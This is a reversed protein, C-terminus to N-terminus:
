EHPVKGRALFQWIRDLRDETSKQHTNQLAETREHAGVVTAMMSRRLEDFDDRSVRDHEVKRLRAEHDEHERHLRQIDSGSVSGLELGKIRAEHDEFCDDVRKIERNAFWKALAALLAVAIGPPLLKLLWEM